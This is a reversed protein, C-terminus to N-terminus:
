LLLERSGNLIETESYQETKIIVDRNFIKMSELNIM